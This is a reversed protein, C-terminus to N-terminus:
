LKVMNSEDLIRTVAITRPMLATLRDAQPWCPGSYKGVSGAAAFRAVSGCDKHGDPEAL